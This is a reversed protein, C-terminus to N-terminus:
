FDGEGGGGGGGGWWVVQSNLNETKELGRSNWGM